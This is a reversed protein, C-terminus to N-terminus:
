FDLIEADEEKLLIGDKTMYLGDTMYVIKRPDYDSGSYCGYGGDYEKYLSKNIEFDNKSEKIRKNWLSKAKKTTPTWNKM